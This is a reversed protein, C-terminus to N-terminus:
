AHKEENHPCNQSGMNWTSVTTGKRKGLFEFTSTLIINRIKEMKWKNNNNNNNNM